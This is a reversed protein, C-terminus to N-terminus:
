HRQAVVQKEKRGIFAIYHVLVYVVVITAIITEVIAFTHLLRFLQSSIVLKLLNAASTCATASIVLPFTFAAFSPYFPSYLFKVIRSLIFWYLVQSLVLLVVTLFINPHSFANLYGTLELSGPAAIITILPLTAVHMNKIHFVRYIIIPLLLFYFFLGVWFNIQGMLLSYNPSTVSIVGIGVFIIFWSPYLHEIAVNPKILFNFVFYGMLGYHLVIALYWLIAALSHSYAVIYTTLVMTGMTFTPSVSAVIPDKLTDRVHKNTFFIKLVMLLFIVAALFGLINGFVTLDYTKLLNGLSALGLMLGSIPIPIKKLFDTM